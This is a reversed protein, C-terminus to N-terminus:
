SVGLMEGPLNDGCRALEVQKELTRQIWPRSTLLKARCGTATRAGDLAANAPLGTDIVAPDPHM